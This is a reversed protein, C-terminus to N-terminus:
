SSDISSPSASRLQVKIQMTYVETITQSLSRIYDEHGATRLYLGACSFGSATTMEQLMGDMVVFSLTPSLVCWSWLVGRVLKLKQLMSLDIGCRVNRMRVVCAIPTACACKWGVWGNWEWWLVSTYETILCDRRLQSLFVQSRGKRALFLQISGLAECRKRHATTCMYIHFAIRCTYLTYNVAPERNLSHSLNM